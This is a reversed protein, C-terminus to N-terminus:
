KEWYKSTHGFAAMDSYLQISELMGVKYMHYLAVVTLYKLCPLFLIKTFCWALQSYAFCSPLVQLAWPKWSTEPKSHVPAAVHTQDPWPLRTKGSLAPRRGGLWRESCCNSPIKLPWRTWGGQLSCLCRWSSWDKAQIGYVFSSKHFFLFWLFGLGPVRLLM